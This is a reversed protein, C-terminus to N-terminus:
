KFLILTGRPIYPAYAAGAIQIGSFTVSQGDGYSRFTGVIKGNADAAVQAQAHDRAANSFWYRNATVDTGGVTFRANQTAYLYLAYTEGPLLGGIAFTCINTSNDGVVGDDLLAHGSSGATCVLDHEAAPVVEVTVGTRTSGDAAFLEKSKCGAAGNSLKVGNWM